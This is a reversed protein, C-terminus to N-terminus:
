GLGMRQRDETGNADRLDTWYPRHFLVTEMERCVRCRDDPYPEEVPGLPWSCLRCFRTSRAAEECWAAWNRIKKQEVSSDDFPVLPLKEDRYVFEAFKLDFEYGLADNGESIAVPM